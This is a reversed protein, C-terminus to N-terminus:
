EFNYKEKLSQFIMKYEDTKQEVKIAINLQIILLSYYTILDEYNSLYTRFLSRFVIKFNESRNVYCEFIEYIKSCNKLKAKTEICNSMFGNYRNQYENLKEKYTISIELKVQSGEEELIAPMNSSKRVKHHRRDGKVSKKKSQNINNFQNNKLNNFDINPKNNTSINNFSISSSLNNINNNLNINNTLSNNHTQIKINSSNNNNNTNSNTNNNIKYNNVSPPQQQNHNSSKEQNNNNKIQQNFSNEVNLNSKKDNEKTNINLKQNNNKNYNENSSQSQVNIKKEINSNGDFFNNDNFNCNNSEFLKSFKKDDLPSDFRRENKRKRNIQEESNIISPTGQVFCETQTNLGFYNSDTSVPNLNMNNPLLNKFSQKNNLLNEVEKLGDNLNM